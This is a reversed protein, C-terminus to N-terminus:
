AARRFPRVLACDFSTSGDAYRIGIAWGGDESEEMEMDFLDWAEELSETEYDYHGAPGSVVYGKIEREM